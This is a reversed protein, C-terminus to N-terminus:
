HQRKAAIPSSQGDGELLDRESNLSYIMTLTTGNVTQAKVQLKSGVFKARTKYPETGGLWPSDEQLKGDLKLVHKESTTTGLYTSKRVITIEDCEHQEISIQVQGDEGVVIYSGSLNPCQPGATVAWQSILIITLSVWCLRNQM